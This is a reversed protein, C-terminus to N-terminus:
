TGYALPMPPNEAGAVAPADPTGYGQGSQPEPPTGTLQPKAEPPPILVYAYNLAPGVIKNLVDFVDGASLALTGGKGPNAKDYSFKVLGLKGRHTDLWGKLDDAGPDTWEEDFAELEAAIEGPTAVADRLNALLKARKEKLVAPLLKEFIDEYSLHAFTEDKGAIPFTFTAATPIDSM